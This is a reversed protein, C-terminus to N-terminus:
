SNLAAIIRQGVEDVSGVGSVQAFKVSSDKKALQQYYELLPKTQQHYIALRKRVTEEKDDERQILAEGTHDDVGHQKPPNFERHYVRGSPGHTLRGSMRKIIEDDDVNVELVHDLDVGHDHLAQAQPMTRPFGDLIFGNKCDPDAIRERVIDIMLEDPVLKGEDMMHKVSLGLPTGAKVAARLIDGTAIQPIQFHKAIMQAQTGKGAGPSGVLIIRM